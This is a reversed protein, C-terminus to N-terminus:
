STDKNKRFNPFIDFFTDDAATTIQAKLALLTVHVSTEFICLLSVSRYQVFSRFRWNVCCMKEIYSM